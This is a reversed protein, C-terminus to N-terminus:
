GQQPQFENQLDARLPDRLAVESRFKDKKIAM